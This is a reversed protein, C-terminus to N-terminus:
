LLLMWSYFNLGKEIPYIAGITKEIPYIAGITTGQIFELSM